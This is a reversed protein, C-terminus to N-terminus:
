FVRSVFVMHRYWALFTSTGQCQDAYSTIMYYAKEIDLFIFYLYGYKEGFIKFVLM